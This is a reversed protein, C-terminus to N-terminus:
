APALSELWARVARRSRVRVWDVGGDTAIMQEYRARNVAHTDWAWRVIGDKRWLGNLSERNGNWLERRLVLRGATRRIVRSMVLWRPLDIWVVLEPGGWELPAQSLYNGCMVWGDPAAAVAAEVRQRFAGPPPETWGPGHYLSDLEIHTVGLREAVAAALTTKGSGSTGVIRIRAAHVRGPAVSESM